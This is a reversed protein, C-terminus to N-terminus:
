DSWTPFKGLVIGPRYPPNIVRTRELIISQLPASDNIGRRMAFDSRLKNLNCPTFQLRNNSSYLTSNSSPYSLCYSYTIDQSHMYHWQIQLQSLPKLNATSEINMPFRDIRANQIVHFTFKQISAIQHDDTLDCSDMRVNFSMESVISSPLRTIDEAGTPLTVTLCRRLEIPALTYQFIKQPAPILPYFYFAQHDDYMEMFSDVRKYNICATMNVQPIMPHSTVCISRYRLRFPMFNIDTTEDRM